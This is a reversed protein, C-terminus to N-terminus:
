QMRHSRKGSETRPLILFGPYYSPLLSDVCLLIFVLKITWGPLGFPDAIISTLELIVYGAALYGIIVRVVKRRKLEQWFQFPNDSKEPM